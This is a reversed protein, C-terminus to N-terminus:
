ARFLFLSQLQRILHALLTVLPVEAGKLLGDVVNLVRDDCLLVEAKGEVILLSEVEEGERLEGMDLGNGKIPGDLPNQHILSVDNDHPFHLRV